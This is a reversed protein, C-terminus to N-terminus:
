TGASAQHDEDEHEALEQLFQKRLKDAAEIYTNLRAKGVVDKKLPLATVYLETIRSTEFWFFILRHGGSGMDRIEGIQKDERLVKILESRTSLIWGHEEVQTIAEDIMLWRKHNAKALKKYMKDAAPLFYVECCDNMLAGM